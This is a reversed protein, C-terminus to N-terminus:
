HENMWHQTYFYVNSSNMKMKCKIKLFTNKDNAEPTCLATGTSPGQAVKRYAISSRIPNDIGISNSDSSAILFMIIQQFPHLM